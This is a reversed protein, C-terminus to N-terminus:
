QQALNDNEAEKRLAKQVEAEVKLEEIEKKLEEIQRERKEKLTLKRRKPAGDAGTANVEQALIVLEFEGIRIKRKKSKKAAPSGAALSGEAREKQLQKRQERRKADREKKQESTLAPKNPDPIFVSVKRDCEVCLGSLRKRGNKTDKEEAEKIDVEKRCHFCHGQM